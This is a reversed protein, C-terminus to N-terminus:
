QELEDLRSFDLLGEATMRQLNELARARRERSDVVARRLAEAITDKRTLTGLAIGAEDLLNEDIEESIRTM